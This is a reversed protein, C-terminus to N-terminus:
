EAAAKEAQTPLKLVHPRGFADRRGWVGPIDLMEIRQIADPLAPEVLLHGNDAELGLL